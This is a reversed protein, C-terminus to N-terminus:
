VSNGKHFYVKMGGTHKSSISCYVQALLPPFFMLGKPNLIVSSFFTTTGGGRKQKELHRHCKLNTVELIM